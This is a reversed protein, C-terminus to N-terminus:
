STLEYSSRRSFELVSATSKMQYEDVYNKIVSTPMKGGTRWPTGPSQKLTTEHQRV